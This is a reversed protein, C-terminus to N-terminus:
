ITWFPKFFLLRNTNLANFVDMLIGIEKKNKSFKKEVTSGTNGESGPFNNMKILNKGIEETRFGKDLEMLYQPLMIGLEVV